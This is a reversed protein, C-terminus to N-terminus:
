TNLVRLLSDLANIGKKQGDACVYASDPKLLFYTIKQKCEDSLIYYEASLQPGM